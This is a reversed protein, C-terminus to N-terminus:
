SSKTKIQQHQKRSILQQSLEQEWPIQFNDWSLSTLQKINQQLWHRKAMYKDM